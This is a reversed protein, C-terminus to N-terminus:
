PARRVRDRGIAYPQAAGLLAMATDLEARLIALAQAVGAEGGAAAAYLTSRGLQVAQAGLAMAKAVDTGSRFGSDVLVTLNGGVADSIEPLLDIAAAAGDLQRGGHNSVVIGDFGRRAAERADAPDILGKVVLKGRWHDRLWAIDDWTVAANLLTGMTEAITATRAHGALLSAVIALQPMGHRAMAFAWRPHAAVSALKRPTWTFPLSFGNKNDRLRTGPVACDVTVEVLEFGLDAVQDLLQRTLARDRLLYLQFWRRGASARAVDKLPVAAATSMVFPVGFAAAARALDIEAGPRAVGALGTPGIVFPAASPAGFLQVGTGRVAVDVPARALLHWADLAARNHRLTAESGSGGDIFDFVMRPLARRASERFDPISAHDAIRM